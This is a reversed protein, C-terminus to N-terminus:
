NKPLITEGGTVHHVGNKDTRYQQVLTRPGNWNKASRLRENYEGLVDMVSESEDYNSSQFIDATIEFSGSEISGKTVVASVVETRGLEFNALGTNKTENMAYASLVIDHIAKTDSPLKCATSGGWAACAPGEYKTTTEIAFRNVNDTTIQGDPNTYKSLEEKTTGSMHHSVLADAAQQTIEEATTGKISWLDKLEGSEYSRLVEKPSLKGKAGPEFNSTHNALDPTASPTPSEAGTDRDKEAPPTQTTKPKANLETPACSTLAVVGVGLLAAGIIRTGLRDSFGPEGRPMPM